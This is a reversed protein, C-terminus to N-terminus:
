FNETIEEVVGKTAYIGIFPDTIAKLTGTTRGLLSKKVTILDGAFLYPNTISGPKSSANYRINKRLLTGDKNYRILSIKGSLPKRPGNLNLVDSLSGEIPIKVKGPVEIEGSIEVEIFKPTLGALISKPIISPDKEQLSPIFINDGDFLRIDYNDDAKNIYSIFNIIARKKGGGKVIPIDRTINIKSLDSYSTLGGAKKIASSITTLYEKERRVRNFSNVQSNKETNRQYIMSSIQRDSEINFSRGASLNYSDFSSDPDKRQAYPVNIQNEEVKLNSLSTSFYGPFSVLGPERVEGGVSIRIPKYRIIDIFVDSNILYKSYRKKLLKELGNITLGRVFTKRTIEDPDTPIEPLIIEGEEDVAFEGDAIFKYNTINIEIDPSVIYKKYVKELLIKLESITLGKVYSNKIEPLIIEGEENITYNGSYPDYLGEKNISDDESYESYADNLGELNLNFDIYITDGTDLLYNDLNGRSDLYTIDSKSIEEETGKNLRGRPRNKFRILLIDGTDLIYDKLEDKSNLYSSDISSTKEEFFQQAQASIFSSLYIFGIIKIPILNIKTTKKIPM